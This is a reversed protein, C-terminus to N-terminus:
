TCNPFCSIIENFVSYFKGNDTWYGLYKLTFDNQRFRAKKPAAGSVKRLARGYDEFAQKLFICVM